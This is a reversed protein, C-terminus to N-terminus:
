ECEQKILNWVRMADEWVRDPVSEDEPVAVNRHYQEMRFLVNQAMQKMTRNGMRVQDLAFYMYELRDIWALWAREAPTLKKTYGVGLLLLTEDEVREFERALVPNNWKAPAPIDGLVREAVDHYLLALILDRSALPYLALLLVVAHWTHQAIDQGGNVYQRTHWRRVMGSHRMDDQPTNM